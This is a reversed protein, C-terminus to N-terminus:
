SPRRGRVGDLAVALRESLRLPDTGRRGRAAVVGGAADAVVMVGFPGEVVFRRFSGMELERAQVKITRAVARAVGALATEPPAAAGDAAEAEEVAQATPRTTGLLGGSRDIAVAEEAHGEKVVRELGKQVRDADQEGAIGKRRRASWTSPDRVLQGAVEVKALLADVSENQHPKAAERLAVLVPRLVEDEGALREIATAQGLLAKDAGIGYYIEALFMRPKLSDPHLAGARMLHDIALRGDRARLDSFFADLAQEGRLLHPAEAESHAEAYRDTLRVAEDPMGVDKYLAILQEYADADNEQVIRDKLAQMGARAQARRIQHDTDRLVAASPFKRLGNTVTKLAEDFDGAALCKRAKQLIADLSRGGIIGDLFGM